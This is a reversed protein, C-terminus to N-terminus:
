HHLLLKEVANINNWILFHDAQEEFVLRATSVKSLLYFPSNPDVLIDAGGQWLVVEPMLREWSNNLLFLDKSLILMEQNSVRFDTPLMSYILWNQTMRNYWRPHQYPAAITGALSIIKSFHDPYDIGLQLALAGGYSHGMVICPSCHERILSALATSQTKLPYGVRNSNEYGLRTFAIIQYEHAISTAFLLEKWATWDGPSGHILLLKPYGEKGIKVSEIAGYKTAYVQQIFPIGRSSFEALIFEKSSAVTRWYVVAVGLSALCLSM